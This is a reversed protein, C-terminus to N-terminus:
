KRNMLSWKSSCADITRGLLISAKRYAEIASKENMVCTTLIEIDKNTWRPKSRIDKKYKNYMSLISRHRRKLVKKAEFAADWDTMGQSIYFKMIGLLTSIEEDNWPGAAIGFQSKNKLINKEYYDKCINETTGLKEAIEKFSQKLTKGENNGKILTNLFFSRNENNWRFVKNKTKKNIGKKNMNDIKDVVSEIDM